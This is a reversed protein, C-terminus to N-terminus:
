QTRLLQDLNQNAKGIGKSVIEFQISSEVVAMQLRVVESMTLEPRELAQTAQSWRTKIQTSASELSELIAGGLSNVPTAAAPAAQVPAAALDAPTATSPGAAMASQFRAVDASVAPATVAPAPALATLALSEVGTVM